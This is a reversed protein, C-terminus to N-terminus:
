VRFRSLEKVIQGFSNGSPIKLYYKGFFGFKINFNPTTIPFELTEYFNLMFVFGQTKQKAYISLSWIKLRVAIKMKDPVITHNFYM